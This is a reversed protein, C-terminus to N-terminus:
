YEREVYTLPVLGERGDLLGKIWEDSLEEIIQIKDGEEFVLDEPVGSYYNYLATVFKPKYSLQALSNAFKSEADKNAVMPISTLDDCEVYSLPFIGRHYNAEGRLWEVDIREVVNIFDGAKFKLDGEVGTDYDYLARATHKGRDLFGTYTSISSPLAQPLPTPMAFSPMPASSATPVLPVKISLFTFPVIGSQGTRTNTGFIWQDDVERKLLVIDNPECNLEDYKDTKYPYKVTAHPETIQELKPSNNSSSYSSLNPISRSGLKPPPPRAPPVKKQSPASPAIPFLEDALAVISPDTSRPRSNTLTNQNFSQSNPSYIGSNYTDYAPGRNQWASDGTLSPYLKERHSSQDFSTTSPTKWSERSPPTTATSSPHPAFGMVPKNEFQKALGMISSKGAPTQAVSIATERTYPDKAASIAANRVQENKAASVAARQVTPNRAVNMAKNRIEPKNITEFLYKTNAFSFGTSENSNPRNRYSPMNAALSENRPKEPAPPPPLPKDRTFM